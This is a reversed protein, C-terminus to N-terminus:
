SKLRKWPKTEIAEKITYGKKLRNFITMHGIPYKRELEALILKEGKYLYYKNRSTNRSQERRTAWVCNEKCYDGDNNVRELSTATPKEGMDRFFNKYDHWSESVKIGRAGYRKNNKNNCRSLMSCWVQYTLTKQNRRSHGHKIPMSSKRLCGCSKSHGQRAMTVIVLRETGCKCKMKVQVANRLISVRNDIVTWNYFIEGIKPVVRQQYEGKKLSM